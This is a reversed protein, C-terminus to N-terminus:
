LNANRLVWGDVGSVQPLSWLALGRVSMLGAIASQLNCPVAVEGDLMVAYIKACDVNM